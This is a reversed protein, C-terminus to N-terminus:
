AGAMILRLKKEDLIIINKGACQILGEKEFVSLTRIVSEYTTNVLTAIDKRSLTFSLQKSKKSEYGFTHV